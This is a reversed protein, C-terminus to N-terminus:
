EAVAEGSPVAADEFSGDDSVALAASEDDRVSENELADAFGSDDLPVFDNVVQENPGWGQPPSRVFYQVCEGQNEFGSGDSRALIQWSGDKCMLTAVYSVCRGVNEFSSGDLRTYERWGNHLCDALHNPTNPEPGEYPLVTFTATVPNSLYHVILAGASGILMISMVIASAIVTTKGM